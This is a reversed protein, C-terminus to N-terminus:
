DRGLRHMLDFGASMRQSFPTQGLVSLPNAFVKAAANAMDSFPEMMSRQTEYMQYLM